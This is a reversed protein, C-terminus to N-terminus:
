PAPSPGCSASRWRRALHRARQLLDLRREVILVPAGGGSGFANSTVSSGVFTAVGVTGLLLAAGFAGRTSECADVTSVAFPSGIARGSRLTDDVFTTGTGAGRRETIRQITSTSTTLASATPAATSTRFYWAASAAFFVGGGGDGDRRSADRQVRKRPALHRADAVHGVARGDLHLRREHRRRRDIERRARVLDRQRIGREARRDRALDVHFRSLLLQDVDCEGIRGRGRKRLEASARRSARAPAHQQENRQRRGRRLSPGLRVVAADIEDAGSLILRARLRQLVRDIFHRLLIRRRAHAILDEGVRRVEPEADGTQVEAIGVARQALPLNGLILPRHLVRRVVRLQAIQDAARIRLLLAARLPCGIGLM